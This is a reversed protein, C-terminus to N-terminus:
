IWHIWQQPTYTVTGDVASAVASGRSGDTVITVSTVDLGDDNDYDNSLVTSTIATDMDTSITDDVAVPLLNAATTADVEVTVTAQGCAGENDCVEYTYSDTGVFGPNPSYTISGDANVVVAGNSPGSGSVIALTTLDLSGDSDSDNAVVDTTTPVGQTTSDTHQLMSLLRQTSTLLM